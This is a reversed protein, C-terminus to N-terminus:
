RRLDARHDRRWEAGAAQPKYFARGNGSCQLTAPITVVEFQQLEELTFSRCEGIESGSFELQFDRADIEPEGLHNRIFFIDNPTLQSDLREVPTELQLPDTGRVILSENKTREHHM